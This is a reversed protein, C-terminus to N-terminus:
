RYQPNETQFKELNQGAMARVKNRVFSTWGLLKGSLGLAMGTWKWLDFYDTHKVILGDKFEFRADIKNHVKRGTKSFTYFAEWHCSGTQGSVNIHTFTIKLDTSAAVLMHWMAKTQKGNLNPFVPDSFSATEHYCNQMTKWDKNQFATYFTKITEENTM